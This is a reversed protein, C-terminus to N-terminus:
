GEEETQSLASRTRVCYYNQCLTQEPGHGPRLLVQGTHDPYEGLGHLSEGAQELGERLRENEEMATAWMHGFNLHTDLKAVLEKTRVLEERLADAADQSEAIVRRATTLALEAERMGERLTLQEEARMAMAAECEELRDRLADREAELRRAYDPLSESMKRSM